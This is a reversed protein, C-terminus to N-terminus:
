TEALAKLSKDLDRNYVVAAPEELRSIIIIYM